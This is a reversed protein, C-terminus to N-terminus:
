RAHATGARLAADTPHGPDYRPETLGAAREPGKWMPEAEYINDGGQLLPAMRELGMGTDINRSPLDGVIPFDEKGQGEGRVYQMFVLNWVELYRDEDAVPGGERGYEPGRDYYIESCPGCPGPVGMSGCSDAM